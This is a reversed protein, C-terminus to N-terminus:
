VQFYGESFSLLKIECHFSVTSNYNYAESPIQYLNLSLKIPWSIVDAPYILLSYYM